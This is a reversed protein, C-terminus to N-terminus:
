ERERKRKLSLMVILVIALGCAALLIIYLVINNNDGTNNDAKVNQSNSNQAKTNQSNSGTQTDAPAITINSLDSIGATPSTPASPEQGSDPTTGSTNDTTGGKSGKGSDTDSDSKKDDDTTKDSDDGQGPDPTPEPEEKSATKDMVDLIWIRNNLEESGAGMSKDNLVVVVDDAFTYGTANYASPLISVTYSTDYAATGTSVNGDDDYYKVSISRSGDAVQDLARSNNDTLTATAALEEGAVPKDLKLIVKDITYNATVTVDHDPMVFTTVMASPDAFTVNEVPSAMYGAFSTNAYLNDAAITVVDGPSYSGSGSGNVVTLLYKSESTKNIVYYFSAVSSYQGATIASSGDMYDQTAVAVAYIKYIAITNEETTLDLGDAYLTNGAIVDEATPEADDTTAIESVSKDALYYIAMDPHDTGLTIHKDGNYSGPIPSHDTLHPPAIIGEALAHVTATVSADFEAVDEASLGAAALSDADLTAVGTLTTDGETLVGTEDIIWTINALVESGGVQVTTTVPMCTALEVYTMGEKMNPIDYSQQLGTVSAKDTYYTYSIKLTQSDVVEVQCENGDLSATTNEDFYYADASMVYMETRYERNYGAPSVAAADGTFWDLSLKGEKIREDECSATVPLNSGAALSEDMTLDLYDIPDYDEPEPTEEPDPTPEAEDIIKCYIIRVTLDCNPMAFTASSDIHYLAEVSYSEDTLDYLWNGIYYGDPITVAVGLFDGCEVTYTDDANQTISKLTAGDVLTETTELTSDKEAIITVKYKPTEGLIPTLKINGAIMTFEYGTLEGTTENRVQKMGLDAEPDISIYSKVTNGDNDVSETVKWAKWGTVQQDDARKTLSIDVTTRSAFGAEIGSISIGSLDQGEEAELEVSYHVSDTKATFTVDGEPMTFKMIGDSAFNVKLTKADLEEVTYNHYYDAVYKLPTYSGEWKIFETGDPIVDHVTVREGPLATGTVTTGDSLTVEYNYYAETYVPTFILNGNPVQGARVYMIPDTSGDPDYDNGIEIYALEGSDEDYHFYLRTAAYETGSSDDECCVDWHDFYYRNGQADEYYENAKFCLYDDRGADDNVSYIKRADAIKYALSADDYDTYAMTWASPSPFSKDLVNNIIDVTYWSGTFTVTKDNRADKSRFLGTLTIDENPMNFTITKTTEDGSELDILHFDGEDSSDWEEFDIYQNVAFEVTIKDGPYAEVTNTGVDYSTDTHTENTIYIAPLYEDSISVFGGTGNNKSVDYMLSDVTITNWKGERTCVVYATCSTARLGYIDISASATYNGNADRGYHNQRANLNSMENGVYGKGEYITAAAYSYPLTVSVTAYDHEGTKLRTEISNGSILSSSDGDTTFSITGNHSVHLDDEAIDTFTGGWNASQGSTADDLAVYKAKVTIYKDVTPTKDLGDKLGKVILEDGDVMPIDEAIDVSSNSKFNSPNWNVYSVDIDKVSDSTSKVSVNFGGATWYKVIIIFGASKSYSCAVKDAYDESSTTLVGNEVTAITKDAATDTITIVYDNQDLAEEDASSIVIKHMGTLSSGTYNPDQARLWALVQNVDHAAIFDSAYHLATALLEAGDNRYDNFIFDYLFDVFDKRDRTLGSYIDATFYKSTRQDMAWARYVRAVADNLYKKVNERAQDQLALAAPIGGIATAAGVVWGLFPVNAALAALFAPAMVPEEAVVVDTVVTMMGYGDLEFDQAADMAISSLDSANTAGMFIGAITSATYQIKETYNGRDEGQESLYDVFKKLYESFSSIELNNEKYIYKDLSQKLVYAKGINVLNTGYTEYGENVTVESMYSSVAEASIQSLQALFEDQTVNGRTPVDVGYRYFGYKSPAVYPVLDTDDVLCFLNDTNKATYLTSEHGGAPVEFGYCFINETELGGISNFNNKASVMLDTQTGCDQAVCDLFNGTLNATASARSFGVIWIKPKAGDIYLSSKYKEIYENLFTVVQDRADGFGEAEGDEGLKCNSAWEAGYGGGRIGVVMLSTKSGDELTIEKHSAVVGISDNTPKKTFAKNYDVDSFGLETMLAQANEYGHAYNDTGFSAVAMIFSMTALSANYETSPNLFYDDTYHYETTFDGNFIGDIYGNTSGTQTFTPDLEETVLEQTVSELDAVTEEQTVPEAYVTFASLDVGTFIIAEALLLATLTNIFKKM